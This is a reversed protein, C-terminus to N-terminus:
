IPNKYSNTLTSYVADGSLYHKWQVLQYLKKKRESERKRTGIHGVGKTRRLSQMARHFLPFNRIRQLLDLTHTYHIRRPEVHVAAVSWQCCFCPRINILKDEWMFLEHKKRTKLEQVYSMTQIQTSIQSYIAFSKLNWSFIHRFIICSFLPQLPVHLTNIGSEWRKKLLMQVFSFDFVERRGRTIGKGAELSAPIWIAWILSRSNRSDQIWVIHENWSPSQLNLGKGQFFVHVCKKKGKSM